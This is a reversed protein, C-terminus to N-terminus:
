SKKERKKKEDKKKDKKKSSKAGGDGAVRVGAAELQSQKVATEIAENYLTSQLAIQTAAPDALLNEMGLGGEEDVLADFMKNKEKPKMSQLQLFRCAILGKIQVETHHAGECEKNTCVNRQAFNMCVPRDFLLVPQAHRMDGLDMQTLMTTGGRSRLMRAQPVLIPSFVSLWVTRQTKPLLAIYQNSMSVFRKQIDAPVECPMELPEPETLRYEEEM